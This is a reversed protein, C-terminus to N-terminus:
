RVILSPRQPGQVATVLAFPLGKGMHREVTEGPGGHGPRARARAAPNPARRDISGGPRSRGAVFACSDGKSGSQGGDAVVEPELRGAQEDRGRAGPLKQFALAGHPAPVGHEVGAPEFPKGLGGLILVGPGDRADTGPQGRQAARAHGDERERVPCPHQEVRAPGTSAAPPDLAGTGVELEDVDHGCGCPRPRVGRPGILFGSGQGVQDLGAPLGQCPGFGGGLLQHGGSALGELGVLQVQDQVQAALDLHHTPRGLRPGSSQGSVRPGLDESSGPGTQRLRHHSLQARPYARGGAGQGPRHATLSLLGVDQQGPPGLSRRKGGSGHGHRGPRHRHGHHRKPCAPM